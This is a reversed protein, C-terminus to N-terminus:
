RHHLDGSGNMSKKVVPNGRYTVDGSGDINVHLNETAWLAADGSGAIRVAVNRGALEGAEVDGSGEIVYGQQAATGTLHVDGSGQILVAVTGAHLADIRLDGSGQITLELLDADFGACTLDGSALLRIASLHPVELTAGIAHRSRFSAGERIGIRLTGDHVETEVLAALNDDAHVTLKEVPAQKLVVDVPGRLELVRVGAIARPQHVLKDSGIIRDHGNGYTVGGLNLGFIGDGWSWSWSLHDHGSEQARAGGALLLVIAAALALRASFSARTM